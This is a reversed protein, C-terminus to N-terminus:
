TEQKTGSQIKSSKIQACATSRMTGQHEKRCIVATLHDPSLHVRVQSRQCASTVQSSKTQLCATSNMKSQEKRSLVHTYVLLFSADAYPRGWVCMLMASILTPLCHYCCTLYSIDWTFHIKQAFAWVVCANDAAVVTELMVCIHCESCCLM